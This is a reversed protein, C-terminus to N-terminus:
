SRRNALSWEAKRVAQCGRGAVQAQLTSINTNCRSQQAGSARGPDLATVPPQRFDRRSGKEHNSKSATTRRSAGSCGGRTLTLDRAETIPLHPM